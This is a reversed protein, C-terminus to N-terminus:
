TFFDMSRLELRGLRPTQEILVVLAQPCDLRDLDSEKEARSMMTCTLSELRTCATTYVVPPDDSPSPPTYVPDFIKDLVRTNAIDLSRIRPANQLIPQMKPRPPWECRPEPTVIKVSKWLYALSVTNWAKNVKCCSYLDNVSLHECLLSLILLNDFILAGFM